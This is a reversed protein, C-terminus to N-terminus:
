NVDVNIGFMDIDGQTRILDTIREKLLDAIDYEDVDLNDFYEYYFDGDIDVSFRYVREKINYPASPDYETGAPTNM